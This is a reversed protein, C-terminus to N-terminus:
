IGINDDFSYKSDSEFSYSTNDLPFTFSIQNAHLHLRETPNSGSTGYLRDGVIPMQLGHPSAAHVRLQHTRGTLPYFAVKSRGECVDLFEYETITEKGNEFDVRQRPRDFWDPSLPLSIIGKEPLGMEKYDGELVAVYRKKIQRTAFLRQMQRYAEDGFTAVIMGSTDQDLRHAVKVEKEAGYREELWKQVSEKERRGPVSLMGSPKEVVCFWENEFVVEPEKRVTVSHEEGLPPTVELGQLMWGLVPGCKGRCAPYHHGHIRVEGEKSAGYWYEAISIPRMGQVYASQLLKPACCEGAGSPPIGMPTSAFIESLSRREGRANLLLFNDFLWQQLTESDRRRKEKLSALHNQARKLEEAYPALEDKVRKKLRHLEAKEYQSQRILAAEEDNSLAREGRRRLRERKSLRCVAKFQEIERDRKFKEKEYRDTIDRLTGKEYNRIEMNMQSIERERTKFYGDPQLYDFVPAVFGPFNFGDEGIQGSFAYFTHRNGDADEAIIVGLMKGAALERCFRVDGPNPSEKLADLRVLLESFAKECEEDPRYDFPNNM